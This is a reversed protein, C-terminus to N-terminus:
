SSRDAVRRRDATSNSGGSRSEASSHRVAIAHIRAAASVASWLLRRSAQAHFWVPFPLLWESAAASLENSTELGWQEADDLLKAHSDAWGDLLESEGSGSEPREEGASDIERAYAELPDEESPSLDPSKLRGEANVVDEALNAWVEAPPRLLRPLADLWQGPLWLQGCALGGQLFGLIGNAHDADNHTCVLIDVHKAGTHRQFLGSFERRNRGGDVLISLDARELFFADGQTVPIAIFRPM